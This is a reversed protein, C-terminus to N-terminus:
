NGTKALDCYWHPPPIITSTQSSIRVLILVELSDNLSLKKNQILSLSAFKNLCTWKSDLYQSLFM